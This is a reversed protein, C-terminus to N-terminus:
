LNLKCHLHIRLWVKRVWTALLLKEYFIFSLNAIVNSDISRIKICTELLFITLRANWEDSSYERSNM